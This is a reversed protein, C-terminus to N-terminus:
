EAPIDQADFDIRFRFLITPLGELTGDTISDACFMDHLALCHPDTLEESLKGKEIRKVFYADLLVQGTFSEQALGNKLSERVCELKYAKQEDM